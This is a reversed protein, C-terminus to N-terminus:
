PRGWLAEPLMTLWAAQPRVIAPLATLPAWFLTFRHPTDIVTWREPSAGSCRLLFFHRREVTALTQAPVWGTIQYSIYTPDEVQDWEAYTIHAFGERQREQRVRLGRRLRAWDFSEVTPRAYVATTARIAREDDPLQTDVVGLDQQIAVTTLGTEERTERLVADRPAEDIEVTGAPIQIGATPHEFLLLDQGAASSRLVFATVKELVEAM